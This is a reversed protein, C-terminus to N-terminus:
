VGQWSTALAPVDVGRDPSYHGLDWGTITAAGPAHGPQRVNPWSLTCRQAQAASDRNIRYDEPQITLSIVTGDAKKTFTVLCKPANAGMMSKSKLLTIVASPAQM